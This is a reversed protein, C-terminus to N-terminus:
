FVPETKEYELGMKLHEAIKRELFYNCPQSVMGFQGNPNVELFVYRGDTTKVMDISGTELRLERMLRVIKGSVEQPLLFPVCRNPKAYNYERFDTRTQDDNQSFIAMSYCQGDLYFIRLEYDKNLCEQFLSPFFRSPLEDIIQPSLESTYGIYSDDKSILMPTNSCAKTITRKHEEIFLGLQKKDTTILTVATDLGVKAAEILVLLKNPNATRPHGLWKARDLIRFLLGSVKALEDDLQTVAGAGAFKAPSASLSYHLLNLTHHRSQLRWRRHWVVKIDEMQIPLSEDQFTVTACDGRLKFAIPLDRDIDEGNIRMFPVGFNELWDMVQETSVELYSQSLILIM